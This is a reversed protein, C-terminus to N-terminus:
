SNTKSIVMLMATYNVQDEHAQPPKYTPPASCSVGDVM